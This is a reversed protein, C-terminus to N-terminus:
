DKPLLELLCWTWYNYMCYWRTRMHSPESVNCYGGHADEVRQWRQEQGTFLWIGKGTMKHEQLSVGSVCKIWPWSQVWSCVLTKIFSFLGVLVLTSHWWGTGSFLQGTTPLHISPHSWLSSHQRGLRAGGTILRQVSGASNTGRSMVVFSLAVNTFCQFDFFAISASFTALYRIGLLHGVFRVWPWDADLNLCQVIVATADREVNLLQTWLDTAFYM